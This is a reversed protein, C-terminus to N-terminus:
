GGAVPAVVLVEDGDRLEHSSGVIHREVIVLYKSGEAEAALYEALDPYEATLSSLLQQITM